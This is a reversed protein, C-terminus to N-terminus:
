IRYFYVPKNKIMRIKEPTLQPIKFSRSIIRTGARCERKFKKGLSEMAANNLYCYILAADQLSLTFFDKKILKIRSNRLKFKLRGLIYLISLNEVGILEAAPFVKEAEQLFKARGCGLEYIILPEDARGGPLGGAKAETIIKRITERGTSIFPAYGRFIINYFQSVFFVSYVALILLILFLWIMTESQIISLM